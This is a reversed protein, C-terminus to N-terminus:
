AYHLNTHSLMRDRDDLADSKVVLEVGAAINGQSLMVGKPEGTSGSTFYIAALSEPRSPLPQADPTIGSLLTALGRGAEAATLCCSPLDPWGSEAALQDAMQPTTMLLRPETSRLISNLRAAPGQFQLPVYTAGAALIGLIVQIAELSKPLCFAVRDGPLVGHRERLFRSCRLMGERMEAFTLHGTGSAM